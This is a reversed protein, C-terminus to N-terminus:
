KICVRKKTCLKVTYITIIFKLRRMFNISEMIFFQKHYVKHQM